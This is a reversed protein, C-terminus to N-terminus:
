QRRWATFSCGAPFPSSCAWSGAFSKDATLFVHVDGSDGDSNHFTGIARGRFGISGLTGDFTGGLSDSGSFSLDSAVTASSNFVEIVNFDADLIVTQGSWTAGLDMDSFSPMATAGKQVVGVNFDEVLFSAHTFTSDVIFNAKTGNSFTFAYITGREHRVQATLGNDTGGVLGQVMHGANDLIVAVTHVVGGSEELTGSWTGELSALSGDSGDSGDSGGGGGGGCASFLLPFLAIALVRLRRTEIM